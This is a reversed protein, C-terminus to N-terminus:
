VSFIQLLQQKILENDFRNSASEKLKAGINMLQENSLSLISAMRDVMENVDRPTFLMREAYTGQVIEPVGGARSAIPITGSLMAELVAYPLPEEMISPFLLAHSTSHLKLVEEYSIRGLLNYAGGLNKNLRGILLRSAERFSRTLLFKVSYDSKLFRQSARLFTYFGKVYSDGGLYMFTPGNLKRETNSIEPSPNYITEIKLKLEPVRQSVIEAMRRSVCIVVDAGSMWIRCLATVPVLMSGMLARILSDHELIEYRCENTVDRFFGSRQGYLITSNYSALQYDHLHAITRKGLKKALPILPYCHLVIYITDAHQMLKEFRRKVLFNSLQLWLKIKNSSKLVSDIIYEVNRVIAPNETGTVVTVRLDSQQALLKTVLYAALTGGSGEPWFLESIILVNM